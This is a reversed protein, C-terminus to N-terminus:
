FSFAVKCKERSHQLYIVCLYIVCFFLLTLIQRLRYLLTKGKTDNKAQRSKEERKRGFQKSRGFPSPGNLLSLDVRVPEPPDVKNGRVFAPGDAAVAGDEMGDVAAGMPAGLIFFFPLAEERDMEGIPHVAPRDTPGPLDDMGRVSSLVPLHLSRLVADPKPIDTEEIPHVAPNDSVASRDQVRRVASLVPLLLLAAEGPRAGARKQFDEEDIGLPAPRDAPAPQDKLGLIAPFIPGRLLAPRGM